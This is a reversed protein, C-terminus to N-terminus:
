SEDEGEGGSNISLTVNTSPMTFHGTYVGDNATLTVANGGLTATPTAGEAPTVSISVETGAALASGSSVSDGNVTVTSSGTGIRNITLRPNGSTTNGGGTNSGTDLGTSTGGANSGNAGGSSQSSSSSGNSSSNSPRAATRAAELDVVTGGSKEAKLTAAQAVRSAVVNFTARSRLNQFDGGPTFIINVEKINSTSFSEMTEAGNSTLSIWFNGLEGLQVKKGELLQEVLCSVADSLVGKVTGRSFVGNHSAIHNVFDSFSMNERMQAKAYAKPAATEDQPSPQLYVSYDIM